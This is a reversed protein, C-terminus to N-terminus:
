EDAADSTYLLCSNTNRDTFIVRLKEIQNIVVQAGIFFRAHQGLQSLFPKFVIGPYRGKGSFM